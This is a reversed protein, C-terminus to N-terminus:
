TTMCLQYCRHERFDEKTDNSLLTENNKYIIEKTFYETECQSYWIITKSRLGVILDTRFFHIKM